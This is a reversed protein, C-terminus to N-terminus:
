CVHPYVCFKFILLFTEWFGKSFCVQLFLLLKRELFSLCVMGGFTNKLLFLHLLNPKM